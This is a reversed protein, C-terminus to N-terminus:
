GMIQLKCNSNGLGESLLKVGSDKLKNGNLNMETLCSHESALAKALPDCCKPTLECHALRHFIVFNVSPKIEFYIM